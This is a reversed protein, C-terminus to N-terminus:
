TDSRMAGAEVHFLTHFRIPDELEIVASWRLIAVSLERPPQFSATKDGFNYYFVADSDQMACQLFVEDSETYILAGLEGIKGYGDANFKDADLEPVPKWEAFVSAPKRIESFDLWPVGLDNETFPALVIVAPRPRGQVFTTPICWRSSEAVEALLLSGAPAPPLFAVKPITLYKM